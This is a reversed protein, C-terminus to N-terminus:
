VTAHICKQYIAKRLQSPTLSAQRSDWALALVALASLKSFASMKVKGDRRSQAVTTSIATLTRKKAM